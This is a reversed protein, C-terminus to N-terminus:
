NFFARRVLKNIKTARNLDLSLYKFCDLQNSVYDSRVFEEFIKDFVM